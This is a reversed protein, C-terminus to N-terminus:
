LVYETKTLLRRAKWATEVPTLFRIKGYLPYVDMLNGNFDVAVAILYCSKKGWMFLRIHVVKDKVYVYEIRTNIGLNSVEFVPMKNIYVVGFYNNFTVIVDDISVTMGRVKIRDNYLSINPVTSLPVRSKISLQEMLVDTKVDHIEATSTDLVPWSCYDSSDIVESYRGYGRIERLFDVLLLM